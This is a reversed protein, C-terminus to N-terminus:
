TYKLMLLPSRRATANFLATYDCSDSGLQYGQVSCVRSGVFILLSNRICSPIDKIPQLPRTASSTVRHTWAAQQGVPSASKGPIHSSPSEMGMYCYFLQLPPTDPWQRMQCYRFSSKVHAKCSNSVTTKSWTYTALASKRTSRICAEFARGREERCASVPSGSPWGLEWRGCASIANHKGLCARVLIGCQYYYYGYHLDRQLGTAMGTQGGISIGNALSMQETLSPLIPCRTTSRTSFHSSTGAM